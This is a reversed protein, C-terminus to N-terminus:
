QIPNMPNSEDGAGYKAAVQDKNIGNVINTYGAAKLIQMAVNSRSGTVCYVIIEADKAVGPLEAEPDGM